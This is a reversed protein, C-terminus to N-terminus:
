FQLLRQKATFLKSKEPKYKRSTTHCTRIVNSVMSRLVYFLLKRSRDKRYVLGDSLEYHPMDRKELNERIKQIEPDQNQCLALTQGFTNGEVALISHCRSLADVHGMRKGPRHQVEFDFDQLFM